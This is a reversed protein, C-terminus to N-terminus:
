NKLHKAFDEVSQVGVLRKGNLFFTPTSNVGFTKNGRERVWLIGDLLKQDQLCSKFRDASMGAQKAMKELKPVPSGPSFAWDEQKAYLADVFAFYKKPGVCRALMFAAAALNDLPFERIIYRVKGTDILKKKLDPLVKTHFNACHPCTMSSYEILVNPADKAGMVMEPLPGTKMLEEMSADGTKQAQAPPLALTFAFAITALGMLLAVGFRRARAPGHPLHTATM